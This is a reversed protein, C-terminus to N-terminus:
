GMGKHYPKQTKKANGEGRVRVNDWYWTGKSSAQWYTIAAGVSVEEVTYIQGTKFEFYMEEKAANYMARKHHTGSNPLWQFGFLFQRLPEQWHAHEAPVEGAALTNGLKALFSKLSSFVTGLFAM